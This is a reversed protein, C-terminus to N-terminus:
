RRFILGVIFGVGFAMALSKLPDERTHAEARSRVDQVSTEVRRRVDEAHHVAVGKYERAKLYAAEKVERAAQAAHDKSAEFKQDAAANDSTAYAAGPTASSAMPDTNSM